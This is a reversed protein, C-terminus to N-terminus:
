LALLLLLSGYDVISEAGYLNVFTTCFELLLDDAKDVSRLSVSRCCLLYCAELFLSWCRYHVPPLIEKLIIPSLIVIWTRWQDATFGSFGSAIKYPIRGIDSPFSFADEMEQLQDYQHPRIIELKIWVSLAHKGTGLLLNHM